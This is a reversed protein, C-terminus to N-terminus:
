PPNTGTLRDVGRGLASPQPRLGRGPGSRAATLEAAVATVGLGAAPLPGMSDM